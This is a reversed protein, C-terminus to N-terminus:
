NADDEVTAESDEMMEEEPAPPPPYYDTINEEIVRKLAEVNKVEQAHFTNGVMNMLAFMSRLMMSKGKAKSDTKIKTKGDEESFHITQDFVMVDSDFNMSFHDFDEKSVVTETMEFDEQGDGPNVVVKYKSGVEGSEGSILDISKFGELWQDLKSVDQHVAWAEKIPKNVTVEHGYNVSPQIFGLALFLLALILISYLIYKLIKM